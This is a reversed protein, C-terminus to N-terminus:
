RTAPGSRRPAPRRRFGSSAGSSGRHGGIEHGDAAGQKRNGVLGAEDVEGGGEGGAADLEDRGAAGGLRQAVGPERDAVHRRQGLERLHHVAPDLGQVRHDVGAQEGDAVLGGVGGREVGVADLREVKEDDVEVGELRRDGGPGVVGGADLVDVDAARRHQAGRGLVVGPHGGDGVDLVVGGEEGLEVGVVAGGAEGEALSPRQRGVAAGGGVVRRDRGPEGAGEALRRGAAAGEGAGEGLREAVALVGVLRRGEVAVARGTGPTAEARWSWPM